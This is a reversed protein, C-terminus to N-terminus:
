GMERIIGYSISLGLGTGQGVEKTTFFPEFIREIINENIGGGTDEVIISVQGADKADVKILIRKDEGVQRSKLVDRANTLLNLLVQEIQIQEGEILPSSEALELKIEINALHLQEGILDLVSHVIEGPDLRTKIHKPQRGFMRMHDIISAARQTQEEIRELKNCLYEEDLSSKNIRRMVNASAMRIINLPQNLEHAVGTAMEGLSAMKSSQMLLAETQIRETIDESVGLIYEPNGNEDQIVAKRTYLIRMGADTKIYEKQIEIPFNSELAKQDSRIFLEAQKQDFLEYDTKGLIQDRPIGLLKEGARNIRRFILNEVDKVFVMNPINEIVAQLENERASLESTRDQIAKSML